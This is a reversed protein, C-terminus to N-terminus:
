RGGSGFVVRETWGSATTRREVSLSSTAPMWGLLGLVRDSLPRVYMAAQAPGEVKAWRPGEARVANLDVRAWRVLGPAAQPVPANALDKAAPGVWLFEGTRRVALAVLDPGVRIERTDGVAVVTARGARRAITARCLDLFERDRAAPWLFVVRRTGDTGIWFGWNAVPRAVLLTAWQALEGAEWPAAGQRVRPRTFNVAYRDEAAQRAAPPLGTLAPQPKDSPVPVSELLAARLAPWFPQGAPEWGIAAASAADFQFVSGRSDGTGERVEVMQDGELRLAARVKGIEPGEPFPFERRFYRDKRLVALDIEMSVLGPLPPAMGRGAQAEDITLRLARESTAILLRGGLRAWALGARRDDSAPEDGAGATVFAYSVGRHSKTEGAPLRVPLVALLTDIVMVAELQGVDLLAFGIAQPQLARIQQWTWPLDEAFKGWQDELKSGVSSQRWGKAVPDAPRPTGLFANRFDGALAADFASADPIVVRVPAAPLPMKVDAAWGTGPLALLLALACAKM